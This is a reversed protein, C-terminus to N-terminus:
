VPLAQQPQQLDFHHQPATYLLPAGDGAGRSIDANSPWGGVSAAMNGSSSGLSGGYSAPDIDALRGRQQRYCVWSVFAGLALGALSVCCSLSLQHRTCYKCLSVTLSHIRNACCVYVVPTLQGAVCLGTYTEVHHQRSHHLCM